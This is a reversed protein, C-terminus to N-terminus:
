KMAEAAIFCRYDAGDPDTVNTLDAGGMRRM